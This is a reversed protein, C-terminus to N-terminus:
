QESVDSSEPPDTTSESGSRRLMEPGGHRLVTGGMNGAFLLAGAAALAGLLVPAVGDVLPDRLRLGAIDVRLRRRRGRKSRDFMNGGVVM